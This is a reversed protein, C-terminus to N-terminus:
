QLGDWNSIATMSNMTFDSGEPTFLLAFKISGNAGAKTVTLKKMNGNSTNQVKPSSEFPVADKLSLTANCDSLLTVNMTKGNRSMTASKGDAAVTVAADTHMFSYVDHTEGSKITIEDQLLFANRNDLLAYGRTAAEATKNYAGTLDVAAYSATSLTKHTTIKAVSRFVQDVMDDAQAQSSTINSGQDVGPGIVLTNSGEARNRYYQYRKEGFMADLGYDESSPLSVWRTGMADLVFAGADLRGHTAVNANNGKYGVSFGMNGKAWSTRMSGNQSEGQDFAYDLPMKERWTAYAPNPRYMLIEYPSYGHRGEYSMGALEPREFIRALWFSGAGSCKRASGDYYNFSTETTGHIHLLYDGTYELGFEDLLSFKFYDDVNGISNYLANEYALYNNMMYSWYDPGEFGNGDPGFHQFCNRMAIHIRNLYQNAVDEYGPTDAIALAAMGLGSNIIPNWNTAQNDGGNTTILEGYCPELAYLIMANRVIQRQEETWYNYMLDYTVAVTRATDGVSLMSHEPDWSMANKTIAEIQQWCADAYKQEETLNYALAMTMANFSGGSTDLATVVENMRTRAYYGLFGRNTKNRDLTQQLYEDTDMNAKMWDLEDQTILLRPHQNNPYLLNIRKAFDFENDVSPGDELYIPSTWRDSYDVNKLTFSEVYTTSNIAKDAENWWFSIGSIKDLGRPSGGTSAGILKVQKNKWSGAWDLLIKGYYYDNSGDSNNNGEDSWIVVTITDFSATESYMSIELTNFGTFDTTAFTELKDMTLGNAGKNNQLYYDTKWDSFKIVPTTKGHAGGAVVSMNKYQDTTNTCAGTAKIKEETSFDFLVMDARTEAAEVQESTVYISDLYLELEPDITYAGYVPWLEVRDISNWGKPSHVTQMDALPVSVLNWGKTKAPVFIEYYDTAPTEANDSIMVLGFGSESDKSAYFWFELYTGTSWDTETPLSLTKTSGAPQWKLSLKANQTYTSVPTLGSAKITASNTTDMVVKHVPASTEEAMAPVCLGTLLMVALLLSFIKKSM